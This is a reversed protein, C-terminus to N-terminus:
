PRKYIHVQRASQVGLWSGDAALDIADIPEKLEFTQVTKMGDPNLIRITGKDEGVALWQGDRSVAM